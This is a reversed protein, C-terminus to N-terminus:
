NVALDMSKRADLLLAELASWLTALGFPKSLFHTQHDLIQALTTEDEFFGSMLLMPLEPFETRLERLLQIGGMKPMNLDSIVFAPCLNNGRVLDLADRGNEVEFVTIGCARLYTGLIQRIASEDDVILVSQNSEAFPLIM